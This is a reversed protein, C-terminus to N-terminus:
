GPQENRARGSSRHDKELALTVGARGIIVRYLGRRHDVDVVDGSHVNETVFDTDFIVLEPVPKTWAGNQFRLTGDDLLLDVSPEAKSGLTKRGFIYSADGSQLSRLIACLTTKGFSNAGFILTVRTLQPNPTSASNRFRGINRISIIKRIVSMSAEEM